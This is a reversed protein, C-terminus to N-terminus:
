RGALRDALDKAAKETYDGVLQIKGDTVPASLVAAMVLRGDLVLALRTGDGAHETTFEGLASAGDGPLAVNVVWQTDLDPVEAEAATVTGAWSAPELQYERGDEDCLTM